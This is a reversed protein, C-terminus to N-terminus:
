RGAPATAAELRALAKELEQGQAKEMFLAWYGLLPNWGFDGEERWTVRSGGGEAALTFTGETRLTGGQVEVRYRVRSPAVAEVIEFRGDGLEADDWALAAGVGADPGVSVLGADPWSTWDRWAAPRELLPFLVEPPTSLLATREASWTGPLAFGVALFLFLLAAGAGLVRVGVSFPSASV